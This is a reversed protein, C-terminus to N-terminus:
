AWASQIKRIAAAVDDMDRQSGLFVNQALWFTHDAARETCPLRTEAPDNAFNAQMTKRIAPSHHLPVYGRSIPTIGEASLASVFAEVPRGGFYQPDYRVILLHRAYRTVRPDHPLPSIGPIESLSESLYRANRERTEAHEDLRELQALLVAGQWETMRLNWGLIEHHYWAGARTRGVNHISWCLEHLEPDDTVMAGGEGATINKSLQFSFAGLDGIAGVRKGRWEAGWAQCADELVRLGHQRAAALIGDMDAPQGALHM